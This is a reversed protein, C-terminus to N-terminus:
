VGVVLNRAVTSPRDAQGFCAQGLGAPIRSYTSLSPVAGFRSSRRPRRLQDSQARPHCRSFILTSEALTVIWNESQERVAVRPKNLLAQGLLGLLEYLRANRDRSMACSQVRGRRARNSGYDHQIDDYFGVLQTNKLITCSLEHYSCSVVLNCKVVETRYEQRSFMTNLRPARHSAVSGAATPMAFAAEETVLRGPSPAHCHLHFVSVRFRVGNLICRCGRAKIRQLFPGKAAEDTTVQEPARQGDCCSPISALRSTWSALAM